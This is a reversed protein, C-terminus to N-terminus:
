DNTIKYGQEKWAQIGGELNKVRKYGANILQQAVQHSRGGKKCYVVIKDDKSIDAVEELRFTEFNVFRANELHGEQYEEPSRTDLIIVESQIEALEEPQIQPVSPARDTQQGYVTSFFCIFIGGVLLILRQAYLM